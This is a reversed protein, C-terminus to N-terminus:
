PLASPIVIPRREVRVARRDVGRSDALVCGADRGFRSTTCRDIEVGGASAVM